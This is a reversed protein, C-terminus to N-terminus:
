GAVLWDALELALVGLPGSPTDTRMGPDGNVRAPRSRAAAPAKGAIAILFRAIREAGHLPQLAAAVKRGGDTWLASDRASLRTPTDLAGAGTAAAFGRVLAGEEEHTPRVRRPPEGVRRRARRGIQRCNAETKDVIEAIEAYDLDCVDRLLFVAREVPNLRELTALLPLGLQEGESVPDPSALETGSAGPARPAAVGGRRAEPP